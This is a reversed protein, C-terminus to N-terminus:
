QLRMGQPTFRGARTMREAGSMAIGKENSPVGQEMGGGLLQQMQGAPTKPEFFKEDLMAAAEPQNRNRMINQLFYNIIKAKNPNEIAAVVQILQIDEQIQRERQEPLKVSSACPRFKYENLFQDFEFPEGLIAIITLPHAFKQAFRLSMKSSPILWTVEIMKVIFDLQASSFTANLAGLTATNEKGAGAINHTVPTITQIESELLAHKQWADRTIETGGTVVVSDSPNGAIPWIQSPAWKIQDWEQVNFKNVMTPPFLNRWIEDFMANVNDDQAIFVDKAPEVVGQSQWREADIYLHGDWYNMEGYPNEEWRILKPRQHGAVTCLMQKWQTGESYIEDRDFIPMLEKKTVKVPWLGQREYIEVESYMDSEPIQSQGDEARLRAHDEADDTKDATSNELDELDMYKIKSNYLNMLDTVERHIIFRGDKISQGPKLLWDVVVDKNNLIIDEPRDDVPFKGKQGNQGPVEVLKQKWNKKGIVVGNLGLRLLGQVLVLFYRDEEMWTELLTERQWCGKKNFGSVGIVPSAGYVKQSVYSIMKWIIQFAKRLTIDSQWDYNKKPRKGRMMLYLDEYLDNLSSTYTKGQDWEHIIQSAIKSKWDDPDPRSKDAKAPLDNYFKNSM